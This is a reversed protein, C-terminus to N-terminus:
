DQYRDWDVDDENNELDDEWSDEVPEPGKRKRVFLLIIFVVAFVAVIVGIVVLTTSSGGNPDEGELDKQQTMPAFITFHTVNASVINRDADVETNECVQWGESDEDWYYLKLDEEDVDDPVDADEYHVEVYFWDLDGDIEAIIFNGIILSGEPVDARAEEPIDREEVWKWSVTGEGKFKCRVKRGQRNEFEAEVVEDKEIPITAEEKEDFDEYRIEGTEEDVVDPVAYDGGPPTFLNAEGVFNPDHFVRHAVPYLYGGKMMFGFFVGKEMKKHRVWDVLNVVKDVGHVQFYAPVTYSDNSNAEPWIEVDSVWNMRGVRQWNDAFNITNREIAKADIIDMVKIMRGIEERHLKELLAVIDEKTINYEEGHRYAWELLYRIDEEGLHKHKFAWVLMAAFKEKSILGDGIAKVLIRAVEKESLKGERHVQLLVFILDEGALVGEEFLKGLFHHIFEGDLVGYKHGLILVFAVEELKLEESALALRVLKIFDERDLEGAKFAQVLIEALDERKLEGATYAKFLVWKVDEMTLNGLKYSMM